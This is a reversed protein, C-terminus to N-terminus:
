LQMISTYTPRPGLTVLSPVSSEGVLGSRPKPSDYSWRIHVMMWPLLGVASVSEPDISIEHLRYFKCFRM